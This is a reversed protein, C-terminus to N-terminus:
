WKAIKNVWKSVERRINFNGQSFSNSKSQEIDERELMKPDSGPPLEPSCQQGALCVSVGYAVTRRAGTSAARRKDGVSVGLTTGPFLWSAPPSVSALCCSISVETQDRSVLRGRTISQPSAQGQRGSGPPSFEWTDSHQPRAPPVPRVGGLRPYWTPLSSCCMCGHHPESRPAPHGGVHTKFPLSPLSAQSKSHNPTLHRSESHLQWCGRLLSCGSEMLRGPHPANTHLSWLQWCDWM